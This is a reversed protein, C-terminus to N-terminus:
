GCDIGIILVPGLMGRKVTDPVIHSGILVDVPM